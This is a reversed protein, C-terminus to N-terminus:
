CQVQYNDSSQSVRWQGDNTQVVEATRPHRFYTGPEDPAKISANNADLYQTDTTDICDSISVRAAEVNTVVPARAIGGEIRHGRAAIGELAAMVTEREKGTTLQDIEATWNADPRSLARDLLDAQATYVALAAQAAGVQQPTFTTPWQSASSSPSQPSPMTPDVSATTSVTTPAATVASSVSGSPPSTLSASSTEEALNDESCAVLLVLACSTVLATGLVRSRYFVM